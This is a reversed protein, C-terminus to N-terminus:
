QSITFRAQTPKGDITLQLVATVRGTAPAALKGTASNGEAPTLAVAESKGGVLVTAKGTWEKTALPKNDPENVYVTMHDGQVVLEVWHEAAEQVQGGHAAAPTPGHAVALTPAILLAFAVAYAYARM